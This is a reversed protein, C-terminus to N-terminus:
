NNVKWVLLKITKDGTATNTVPLDGGILLLYDTPTWEGSNAGPDTRVMYYQKGAYAAEAAGADFSLPFQSTSTPNPVLSPDDASTYWYMPGSLTPTIQFITVIKVSSKGTKLPGPTSGNQEYYIDAQLTNDTGSGTSLVVGRPTGPGSHLQLTDSGEFLVPSFTRVAASSSSQASSPPPNCTNVTRTFEACKEFAPATKKRVYATFCVYHPNGDCYEKEIDYNKPEFTYYDQGNGNGNTSTAKKGDIKVIASDLRVTDEAALNVGVFANIVLLDWRDELAVTIDYDGIATTDVYASSLNPPAGGSSSSRESPGNSSGGDCAALVVFFAAVVSLLGFAKPAFKKFM